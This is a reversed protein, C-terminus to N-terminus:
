VHFTSPSATVMLTDYPGLPTGQAALWPRMSGSVEAAAADFPAVELTALFRRLAAALDYCLTTKGVGHTGIFALKM